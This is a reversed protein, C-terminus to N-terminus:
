FTENLDERQTYLLFACIVSPKEHRQRSIINKDNRGGKYLAKQEQLGLAIHLIDTLLM